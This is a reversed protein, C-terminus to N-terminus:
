DENTMKEKKLLSYGLVGIFSIIPYLFLKFIDTKLVLNNSLYQLGNKYIGFLLLLLLIVLIIKKRKEQHDDYFLATKYM